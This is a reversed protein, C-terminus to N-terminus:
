EKGLAVPKSPFDEALLALLLKAMNDADMVGVFRM